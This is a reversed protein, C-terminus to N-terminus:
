KAVGIEILRFDHGRVPLTLVGDKLAVAGDLKASDDFTELAPAKGGDPDDLDVDPEAKLDIEKIKRTLNAHDVDVVTLRDPPTAGLGLAKLDLKVTAECRTKTWNALAVVCSGQRKWTSVYLGKHDHTAAPRADWYPLYVVNPDKRFPNVWKGDLTPSWEQQNLWVLDHVLLAGTYAREHQYAWRGFKGAPFGGAHWGLWMSALGWKEPHHFRLRDPTWFDMFDRPTEPNNTYHDEGDFIVDFGSHFPAFYTHTSHACMHPTLGNDYHIQRLRRIYERHGLFQFGPQRTGDPLTYACPGPIVRQPSLWCDDMYIGFTLGRKVWENYIWASYDNLEKTYRLTDWEGTYGYGQWAPLWEKSDEPLSSLNRLDLYLGPVSVTLPQNGRPRDAYGRYGDKGDYRRKAAEWDMHEPHRQFSKVGGGLGAKMDTGCFSDPYCTWGDVARWTPALPKFPIPHLGFAFSRPATLVVPSSIVNLVLTVATKDRMVTVGPTEMSQTWGRDNEAFWAMGRKDGTLLLYPIFSGRMGSFLGVKAKDLSSFLTGEAAPTEGIWVSRPDRFGHNGSWWHMLRASDPRYPIRVALTDVTPTKGAAPALTVTCWLMGDYEATSATTLIFDAGAVGGSITAQTEDVVTVTAQPTLPKFAVPRGQATAHVEVPGALVDEGASVVKAPLGSPAFSLERGNMRVLNAAGTVPTWDPMVKKSLGATSGWWAPPTRTFPSTLTKLTKGAKDRAAVSLTYTGFDLPPLKVTAKIARDPECAMTTEGLPKAEGHRAVAVAIEAVAAYDALLPYVTATAQGTVGNVSYALDFDPVPHVAVRTDFLTVLTTIEAPALMRRYLRFDDLVIQDKAAAFSLQLPKGADWGKRVWRWSGGYPWPKGNVYAISSKDDWVIAVHLWQGPNLDVPYPTSDHDPTKVWDFKLVPAGGQTFAFLPVFEQNFKAFQNWEKYNDWTLPRSWFALTGSTPFVFGTGTYAITKGEGALMLGQRDVGDTFAYAFKRPEIRLRELDAVPAKTEAPARLPALSQNFPLWFLLDAADRFYPQGTHAPRTGAADVWDLQPTYFERTASSLRVEDLWGTMGSKGDVANGVTIRESGLPASLLPITVRGTRAQVQGNVCLRMEGLHDTLQEWVLALHFWTGPTCRWETTEQVGKLWSVGLRGDPQLTVKVPTGKPLHMLTAAAAPLKDLRVWGELAWGRGYRSRLVLAGDSGTFRLSGRFKGEAVLECLGELEGPVGQMAANAVQRGEAEGPDEEGVDAGPAPQRERTEEAAGPMAEDLHYIGDAFGDDIYPTWFASKNQAVALGALTVLILLYRYPSRMM